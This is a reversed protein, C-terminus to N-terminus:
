WPLKGRGLIADFKSRKLAKEALVTDGTAAKGVTLM